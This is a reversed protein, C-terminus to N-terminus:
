SLSLYKKSNMLRRMLHHVKTVGKRAFTDSIQASTLGGGVVVVNTERGAKIKELVHLPLEGTTKTGFVHIVSEEQQNAPSFPCDPPLRRELASGVALVVLKAKKTGTSTKLTFIRADQDYTIDQVESKEVLNDLKYRTVIEACFDKFMNQPPRFYDKRDREDLYTAWPQSGYRDM